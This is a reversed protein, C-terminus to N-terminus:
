HKANELFSIVKAAADFKYLDAHGGGAIVELSKDTKALEYLRRGQENPVVSDNDGFLVLLPIRVREIKAENDFENHAIWWPPMWIFEPVDVSILQTYPAELVLAKLNPHEAAMPVAVGTGLSEGYLVIRRPPIGQLGVWDIYSRADIYLNEESPIGPNGGYGRYEALLFGYGAKIFEQAKYIRSEINAADSHFFIIIPKSANAPAKYWGRLTIHDDTTTNLFLMGAAEFKASDIRTADPTFHYHQQKSHYHYALGYNVIVVLLALKILAKIKNWRKRRKTPKPASASKDTM